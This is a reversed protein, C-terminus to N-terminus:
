IRWIDDTEPPPAARAAHATTLRLGGDFDHKKWDFLCPDTMPGFPNLEILEARLGHTDDPQMAIDVVVSDMHLADTLDPLFRGIARRIDRENRALEPFFARHRYQSIGLLAGADFFMRFEAWPAIDRWDRLHIHIADDTALQVMLARAVRPDPRTIIGLLDHMTRCPQHLLTSGKWSCYGTRPMAGNEFGALHQSLADLLTDSFFAAKFYSMERCFEPTFGGLVMADDVSLTLSERRPALAALADPWAEPFTAATQIPFSM